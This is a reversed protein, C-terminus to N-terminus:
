KQKRKKSFKKCLNGFNNVVFENANFASLSATFVKHGNKELADAIGYFYPYGVVDDFGSLGHVLVIPYTTSM